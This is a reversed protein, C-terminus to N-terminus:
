PKEVEPRSKKQIGTQWEIIAITSLIESREPSNVEWVDLEETLLNLIMKLTSEHLSINHSKEGM